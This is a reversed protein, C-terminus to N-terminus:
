APVKVLTGGSILIKRNSFSEIFDQDHSFFVVANGHALTDKLIENFLDFRNHGFYDEPRELLLVDFSKTLERIAVAMRLEVPRLDGPRLDLKEYIKFIKCFRVVNQDLTLSLSNQFFSRKLLLNERITRNSIMASDQGIYGIKRKFFLLNRYDSFDIVKGKYRFTGSEPRVITALTKLFVHADDITDTNVACADGDSLAFYFNNLGNGSGLAAISYNSLEILYM